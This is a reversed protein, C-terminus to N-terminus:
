YDFAYEGDGCDDFIVVGKFFGNYCADASERVVFKYKGPLVCVKKVYTAGITSLSDDNYTTVLNYEGSNEDQRVLVLSTTSATPTIAIKFIKGSTTSSCLYPSATIAAVETTTTITAAAETNTTETSAAATNTVGAKSTSLPLATTLAAETTTIETTATATADTTTTDLIDNTLTTTADTTSTSLSLASTSSTVSLETSSTSTTDLVDLIDNTLSSSTEGVTTATADTTLNGIEELLSDDTSLSNNGFLEQDISTENILTLPEDNLSASTVNEVDPANSGDNDVNTGNIISLSSPSATPSRSPSRTPSKTPSKTPSRSPSNTPSYTVSITPTYTPWITPTYTPWITPNYTPSLSTSEIPSITPFDDDDGALSNQDSREGSNTFPLNKFTEPFGFRLTVISIFFIGVLIIAMDVFRKKLFQCISCSRSTTAAANPIQDPGDSNNNNNSDNGGDTTNDARQLEELGVEEGEGDYLPNPRWARPPELDMRLASGQAELDELISLTLAREHSSVTNSNNNNNHPTENKNRKNGVRSPYYNTSAHFESSLLEIEDDKSKKKRRPM